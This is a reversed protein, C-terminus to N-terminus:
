ILFLQFPCLRLGLLAGPSWSWSDPIWVNLHTTQIGTDNLMDNHETVKCCIQFKGYKLLDKNNKVGETEATCQSGLFYM